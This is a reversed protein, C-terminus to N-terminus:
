RAPAMIPQIAPGKLSISDGAAVLKVDLAVDIGRAIPATYVVIKWPMAVTAINPLIEVKLVGDEPGIELQAGIGGYGSNLPGGAIVISQRSFDTEHVDTGEKVVQALEEASRITYIAEEAFDIWETAQAQWAISDIAVRTRGNNEENGNQGNEGSPQSCAAMAAFAIILLATRKM